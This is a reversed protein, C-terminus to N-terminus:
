EFFSEEDVMNSEERLKSNSPKKQALGLGMGFMSSERRKNKPLNQGDGAFQRYGASFQEYSPGAIVPVKGGHEAAAMASLGGPSQDVYTPQLPTFGTDYVSRQPHQ